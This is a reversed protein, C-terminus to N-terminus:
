VRFGFLFAFFRGRSNNAQCLLLCIGIVLELFVSVEKVATPRVGVFIYADNLAVDDAPAVVIWEERGPGAPPRGVSFHYTTISKNDVTKITTTTNARWMADDRHSFFFAFHREGNNEQWRTALDELAKINEM